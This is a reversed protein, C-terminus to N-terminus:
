ALTRITGGSRSEAGIGGTAASRMKRLVDPELFALMQHKQYYWEFPVANGAEGKVVM